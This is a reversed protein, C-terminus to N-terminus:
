SGGFKSMSGVLAIAAPGALVMMLAPLLTLMMVMTMKVSLKGAAEKMRAKRRQRLRASFQNLPEQVAGGHKDLQVILRVLAKLDDDNFTEDLRKMSQERSRGRNYALNALHLEHGLVPVTSRFEEAIIHLTQDISMGVGQLLRILDVMLPLEDRAKRALRKAWIGLVIKPLFLGILLGIFAAIFLRWASQSQWIAALTMIGLALILRLALYITRGRVTNNDSRDLLLRDEPALLLNELRGGQFPEGFHVLWEKLRQMPTQKEGSAPGNRTLRAPDRDIANDVVEAHRDRQQAQILLTIAFVVLAAALMLLALMMLNM